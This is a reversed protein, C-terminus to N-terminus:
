QYLETDDIDRLFGENKKPWYTGIIVKIGLRTDLARKFKLFADRRQAKLYKEQENQEERSLGGQESIQDAIVIMKNYSAYYKNRLESLVKYQERSLPLYKGKEEDFYCWIQCNGGDEGITHKKSSGRKRVKIDLFYRYFTEENVTIENQYDEFMESSVAKSTNIEGEPWYVYFNDEILTKGNRAGCYVECYVETIKIKSKVIEFGAYGELEKLRKKKTNRYTSYAIGFWEAIEKGNYIKGVELIM